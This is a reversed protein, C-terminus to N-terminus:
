REGPMAWHQENAAVMQGGDRLAPNLRWETRESTGWICMPAAGPEFNTSVELCLRTQGAPIDERILTVLAAAHTRILDARSPQPTAGLAQPRLLLALPAALAARRSITM